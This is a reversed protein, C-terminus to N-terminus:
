WARLDDLYLRPLHIVARPLRQNTYPNRPIALKKTTIWWQVQANAGSYLNGALERLSRGYRKWSGKRRITTMPPFKQTASKKKREPYTQETLDSRRARSPFLSAAFSTAPLLMTRRTTLSATGAVDAVKTLQNNQWSPVYSNARPAPPSHYLPVAAYM